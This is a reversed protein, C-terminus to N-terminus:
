LSPYTGHPAAPQANARRYRLGSLGLIGLLLLPGTPGGGGDDGGGATQPSNVTVTGNATNNGSSPDPEDATVSATVSQQGTAVGTVGLDLSTSSQGVISSGQCTVQQTTVNCQGATWDATDARLGSGLDITIAVNTAAANSLNEVDVQLTTATNLDIAGGGGITIAMDATPTVSIQATARNNSSNSDQDAAITADLVANGVSDTTLALVVNRSAGAPISGITCDVTGAGSTCSGASPTATQLSVQSGIQVALTVNEAQDVGGNDVDFTVSANTGLSVSQTSPDATVAVDVNSLPFLCQGTAQAIEPQMQDISCQSFEDSGNISPAMLFTGTESECASGSEGDHPAGFNHGIEHAAILSDTTTGRRAESLGVGFRTSCVAGLFAVGVTSGDLNKGTYMHTLSSATQAPTAARYDGVEDLLDGADTQDTFPDASDTFIEVTSVTLQIGLQESFIGDVNNIRALIATTANAGFSNSFEFDGIMGVTVEATAGPGAALTTGLEGVIKAFAEGGSQGHETGCSMSDPVVLSDALRYIVPSDSAIQSDGPAEIALLERGDWILGRPQGDAIVLRVWSADEGVLSGQYIAVGGPIRDMANALRQNNELLLEFRRGLADFSMQQTTTLSLKEATARGSSALVFNQLPEHHNVIIDAPSQAGAPGVWLAFGLLFSNLTSNHRGM